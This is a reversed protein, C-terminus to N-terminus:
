NNPAGDDIWEKLTVLFAAVDGPPSQHNAELQPVLTGMSSDGAVVPPVGNVGDALFNAHSDLKAGDQAFNDNHCSVCNPPDIEFYPQIDTAFSIPTGGMGGMGGMGASGGMGGMGASGGMGSM